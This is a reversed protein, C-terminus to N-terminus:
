AALRIVDDVIHDMGAVSQALRRARSLAMRQASSTMTPLGAAVSLPVSSTRDAALLLVARASGRPVDEGLREEVMTAVLAALGGASLPTPFPAGDFVLRAFGGRGGVLRLVDDTRLWTPRARHGLYARASSWRYRVLESEPIFSLPNRHVYRVLQILYAEDTVPRTAFRARFLPGDRGWRENVHRVYNSALLHMASSLGGDPCELVLHYHNGMLCYSHVLVGFRHHVVDLLRLFEVRDRDTRFIPQRDVGRNFVHHYGGAVDPRLPRGM